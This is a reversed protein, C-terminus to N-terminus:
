TDSRQPHVSRVTYLKSIHSQTYTSGIKTKVIHDKYRM